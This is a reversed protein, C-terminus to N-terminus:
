VCLGERQLCKAKVLSCSTCQRRFQFTQQPCEKYSSDSVGTAGQHKACYNLPSSNKRCQLGWSRFSLFPCIFRLSSVRWFVSLLSFASALSFFAHISCCIKQNHPPRCFFFPLVVLTLFKFLQSFPDSCSSYSPSLHASALLQFELFQCPEFYISTQHYLLFPCAYLSSRCRRHAYLYTLLFIFFTSGKLHM